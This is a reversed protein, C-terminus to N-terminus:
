AWSTMFLFFSLPERRFAAYLFSTDACWCSLLLLVWLFFVEVPNKSKKPAVFYTQKINRFSNTTTQNTFNKILILKRVLQTPLYFHFTWSLFRFVTPTSWGRRDLSYSSTTVDTECVRWIGVVRRKSVDWLSTNWQFCGSTTVTMHSSSM